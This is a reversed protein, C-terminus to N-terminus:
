EATGVAYFYYIKRVKCLRICDYVQMIISYNVTNCLYKKAVKEFLKSMFYGGHM